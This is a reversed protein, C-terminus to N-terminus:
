ANHIIIIIIIIIFYSSTTGDGNKKQAFGVLFPNKPAKIMMQGILNSDVGDLEVSFRTALELLSFSWLKRLRM